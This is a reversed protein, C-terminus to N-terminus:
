YIQLQNKKQMAKQRKEQFILDRDTHYKEDIEIALSYETFSIDIKFLINKQSKKDLQIKKNYQECFYSDIEYIKVSYEELIEENVFINGIKSKVEHEACKTIEHDPIM